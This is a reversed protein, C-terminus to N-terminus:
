LYSSLSDVQLSCFIIVCWEDDDSEEPVRLSTGHHRHRASEACLSPRFIEAKEENQMTLNAVFAKLQNNTKPPTYAPASQSSCHSGDQNERGSDAWIRWPQHNRTCLFDWPKGLQNQTHSYWLKQHCHGPHWRLKAMQFISLFARNMTKTKMLSKLRM